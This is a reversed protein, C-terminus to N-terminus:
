YSGSLAVMSALAPGDSGRWRDWGLFAADLAAAAGAAAVFGLTGSESGGMNSRQLYAGALYGVFPLGIRLALSGLGSGVSGHALHIVVPGTAYIAVATTALPASGEHFTTGILLSGVAVADVALTQWGYWVEHIQSSRWAEFEATSQM